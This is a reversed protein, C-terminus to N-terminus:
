KKIFLGELDFQYIEKSLDPPYGGGEVMNYTDVRQIFDYNVILAEQELAEELSDVVKLTKRKFNKVGYKKVARQFLTGGNMYSKPSNTYVGCGLYGDFKYPSATKHLGVYIKGNTQNTTIYIIYKM